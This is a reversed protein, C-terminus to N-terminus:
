AITICTDYINIVVAVHGTGNLEKDWILLSDKKPPVISGNPYVQIPYVKNTLTIFYTMHFLEYANDIPPFTIHYRLILYRRAYEVCEWTLGTYFGFFYYDKQISVNQYAVVGNSTGIIM